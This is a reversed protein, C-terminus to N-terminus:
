NINLFRFAVKVKSLVEISTIPIELSYNDYSLTAKAEDTLDLKRIAKEGRYKVLYIGSYFSTIPDMILMDGYTIFPTISVQSILTYVGPKSLMSNIYKIYNENNDQDNMQTNNNNKSILDQPNCDLARAIKIMNDENLRRNGNELNSINSYSIGSLIALERQTINKKIRLIKINNM